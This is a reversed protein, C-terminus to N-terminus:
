PAILNCKECEDGGKRAPGEASAPLFLAEWVIFKADKPRVRNQINTFHSVAFALLPRLSSINKHKVIISSESKESSASLLLGEAKGM